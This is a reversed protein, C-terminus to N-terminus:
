DGAGGGASKQEQSLLTQAGAIVIKEDAKFDEDMFIGAGVPRELSVKRREFKEASEQVYAWAAGAIYVIAARPIVVGERPEGPLELFATVAAGPRLPFAPHDIRLLYGQAQTKPDVSTAPSIETTSLPEGERGIAIVRASKPLDTLTQGAAVDVRIFASESRVLQNMLKQRAPADLQSITGGWELSLRRRLGEAKTQDVRYQAEATELQKRAVNEGTQFLSKARADAALSAELSAEAASLEGDLAVLPSPDIVRGYSALEPKLTAAKLPEVTLAIRKQTEEDMKLEIETEKKEDGGQGDKSGADKVEAADGHGEKHVIHRAGFWLLGGFGAAIM